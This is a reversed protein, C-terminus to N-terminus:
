KAWELDALWLSGSDTQDFVLAVEAVNALDVGSFLTLPLRLTTLLVRGVFIGTDFVTSEKMYGSPFALAPEEPSTSVVAANGARDTLRLSFAQPQDAANLPSAPDVAARLTIAAYGSLDGAGEPLSFRLAAGRREWAVAALAPQGPITVYHRRCAGKDPAQQPTYYGRPCFVPSVDEAVVPGSLRHTALEEEDAPTWLTRRNAAPPLFAVRAPLGYLEIPAPATVDLGLRALAEAAAAPEAAFVAELFDATYAALWGRQAEPELATACDPRDEPQYDPKLLTNFNNHNARELWVSAAWASQDASLRAGEYFFQGDQTMVDGDCAALITAFPVASPQWPDASTSAAAIQLVGAVPGYGSDPAPWGLANALYWALEGGRSHGLLALRALDVRGALDVGFADSKGAAAEALSRLHLDLLQSGRQGFRPEGFGFTNEANLNPALAVYGQAALSRVLYEFGSYNPQEEEPACPWIDAEGDGLPCSPHTGHLIVVVPFPGEGKTPVAMVGNLRVPMNRFRNGEPFQEQVVVADGLNYFVASPPEAAPATPEPTEAAAAPTEVPVPPASAEPAAPLEPQLMVCGSLIVGLLAVFMLVLVSRGM